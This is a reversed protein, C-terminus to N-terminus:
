GHMPALLVGQHPGQFRDRTTKLMRGATRACILNVESIFISRTYTQTGCLSHLFLLASPGLRGTAEIIFPIVSRPLLPQPTNVRAYHQRKTREYQCAAGDQNVHSYTPARQFASAAPDVIGIDIFFTDAGKIYKIDTRVHKPADGPSTIQGVEFELSLHTQQIGPNLRKILQYLKDRINDHRLNRPGKNLSCSLGHLSDVSADFVKSCACVRLLGPPDNTPGEGLKARAVLRFEDSSFYGESGLGILSHIFNTSSDTSSLMWSALQQTDPNDALLSLLDTSQKKYALTKGTTLTSSASPNVLSLMIADTLGTDDQLGEQTGLRIDTRSFLNNTFQYELPFHITLFDLFAMRSLIQNKETAM